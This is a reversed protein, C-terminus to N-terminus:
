AFCWKTGLRGSDSRVCESPSEDRTLKRRRRVYQRVGWDRSTYTKRARDGWRGRSSLTLVIAGNLTAISLVATRSREWAGSSDRETARVRIMGSRKAAPEGPPRLEGMAPKAYVPLAGTTARGLMLPAAALPASRVAVRTATGIARSRKARAGTLSARCRCAAKRRLAFGSLPAGLGTRKVRMAAFPFKPPGRGFPRRVGNTLEVDLGKLKKLCAGGGGEYASTGISLTTQRPASALGVARSPRRVRRM